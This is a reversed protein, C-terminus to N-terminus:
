MLIETNESFVTHKLFKYPLFRITLYYLFYLLFQELSNEVIKYFNRFYIIFSFCCYFYFYNNKFYSM